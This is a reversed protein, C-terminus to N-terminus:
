VVKAKALIQNVASMLRIGEVSAQKIADPNNNAYAGVMAKGFEWFLSGEQSEHEPAALKRFKGYLVIRTNYLEQFQEKRGTALTDQVRPLLTSMFAAHISMRRFFVIRDILHVGFILLEIFLANPLKGNAGANDNGGLAKLFAPSTEECYAVLFPVVSDINADYNKRFKDFPWM